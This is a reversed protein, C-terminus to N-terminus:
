RQACEHTRTCEHGVKRKRLAYSPNRWALKCLARTALGSFCMGVWLIWYLAGQAHYVEMNMCIRHFCEINASHFDVNKLVTSRYLHAYKQIILELDESIFMISTSNCLIALVCLLSLAMVWFSDARARKFPSRKTYVLLELADMRLRIPLWITVALPLLPALTTCLLVFAALLVCELPRDEEWADPKYARLRMQDEAGRVADRVPLSIRRVERSGKNTRIKVKSAPPWWKSWSWMSWDLGTTTLTARRDLGGSRTQLNADTGQEGAAAQGKGAARLKEKQLDQEM